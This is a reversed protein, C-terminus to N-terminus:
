HFTEDPGVTEINKRLQESDTHIHNAVLKTSENLRAQLAM